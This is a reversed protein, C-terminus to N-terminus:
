LATTTASEQLKKDVSIDTTTAEIDKGDSGSSDKADIEKEIEQRIESVSAAKRRVTELIVHIQSSLDEREEAVQMLAREHIRLSSELRSNTGAAVEIRETKLEAIAKGAENASKEVQSVMQDRTADDLGSGGVVLREVEELRRGTQAISWEAQAEQSIATWGRLRENVEIKVTYLMDGPLAREAAYSIGGTVFVVSAFGLAVVRLSYFFSALSFQASASFSQEERMHTRLRVRLIAKEERTLVAEQIHIHHNFNPMM